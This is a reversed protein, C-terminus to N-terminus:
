KINICVFHPATRFINIRQDPLDDFLHIVLCSQQAKTVMSRCTIAGMAAFFYLFHASGHKCVLLLWERHHSGVRFVFVEEKIYIV